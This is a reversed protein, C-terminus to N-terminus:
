HATRILVILQGVREGIEGSPSEFPLIRGAGNKGHWIYSRSEKTRLARAATGTVHRPKVVGLVASGRILTFDNHLNMGVRGLLSRMGRRARATSLPM